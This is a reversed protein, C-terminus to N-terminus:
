PEGSVRRAGAWRAWWWQGASDDPSLTGLQVGGNASHIFRGDGVYLGVHEVPGGPRAAFTLIDGPLLRDLSREVAAGSRAQDSSVRPLAVGHQAYAYQILGSCDYGDPGTGGWQYPSGMAALATAVVSAARTPIRAATALRITEEDGAAASPLAVPALPAEDPSLEAHGRGIAAGIRLGLSISEVRMKARWTYLAEAQLGVPGFSALEAGLGGWAGLGPGLGGGASGRGFGLAAGGILYPRANRTTRLILDAGVGGWAARSEGGQRVYLLAPRYSLPGFSFGEFGLRYESVKPSTLWRSAGVAVGQGALSGPLIGFAALGALATYRM